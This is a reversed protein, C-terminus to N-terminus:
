FNPNDLKWLGDIRVLDWSGIFTRLSPEKSRYEILSVNVRARGADRDVYVTDLRTIDIRTTPRFRDILWADPPYRQQMSPSWLDIAREWDHDAVADYFAIVARAPASPQATPPETPPTIATPQPTPPPEPHPTSSPEAPTPSPTPVITPAIPVTTPIVAASTTPNAQALPGAASSGGVLMAVVVSALLLVAIAALLVDGRREAPLEELAGGMPPSGHSPQAPHLPDARASHRTAGPGRPKRAWPNPDATGVVSASHAGASVSTGASAGAAGAAALRTSRAGDTRAAALPLAGGGSRRRRRHWATLADAFVRASPYRDEPNKALARAVIADLGAPLGRVRASPPPAPAHLRVTALAAPSEADWPPAGTLMEYLVVGLSFIDGAGSAEDGLAQEPSLYPLSGLVTGPTTMRNATLARAIGFDALRTRGDRGVLLNAPKVDRHILARRHAAALARAAAAAIDVAEEPELRGRQALLDAVSPGNVLEMVIFREGADVDTDYVAAVNPHSLSAARRAEWAFRTAVEPDAALEPRLLKVAVPRDLRLDRARWVVAMGGAGIPEILEYRGALRQGPSPM